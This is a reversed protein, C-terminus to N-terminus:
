WWRDRRGLRTVLGLQLEISHAYGADRATTVVHLAQLRLWLNRRTEITFAAGYHVGGVADRRSTAQEDLVGILDAGALVRLGLQREDVFRVALQARTVALTAVGPRDAYGAMVLSAEVELGVRRTPFIGLRGGILAGSTVADAPDTPNGLTSAGGGESPPFFGGVQVGADLAFWLARTSPAAPAAPPDVLVLEVRGLEVAGARVLLAGTAAGARVTVAVDLGRETREADGLELDGIAEVDLQEGIAAVSAITVHVRTTRDRVLAAIPGAVRVPAIVIPVEVRPQGAEGGCALLAAGPVTAVVQAAPVGHGLKCILGPSSFRAGIAFATTAPVTPEDTGPAIAAVTVIDVALEAPPSERGAADIATVSLQHRGPTNEAREFAAATGPLEIDIQAGADTWRARYRAVGPMPAWTLRVPAPAGGFAVFTRTGAAIAPTAPPRSPTAEALTAALLACTAV